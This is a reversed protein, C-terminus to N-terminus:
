EPNEKSRRKEENRLLEKVEKIRFEVDEIERCIEHYKCKKKNLEQLMVTSLESLEEICKMFVRRQEGEIIM